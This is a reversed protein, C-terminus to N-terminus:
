QQLCRFGVLEEGVGYGSGGHDEAREAVVGGQGDEGEFNEGVMMKM